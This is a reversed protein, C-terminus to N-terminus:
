YVTCNVPGYGAINLKMKEGKRLKSRVKASFNAGPIHVSDAGSVCYVGSGQSGKNKQKKALAPSAILMSASCLVALIVKM